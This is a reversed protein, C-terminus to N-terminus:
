TAATSGNTASGRTRCGVIPVRLAPHGRSLQVDLGAHRRQEDPRADSLWDAMDVANLGGPYEERLREAYTM